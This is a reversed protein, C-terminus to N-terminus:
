PLQYSHLVTKDDTGVAAVWLQSSQSAMVDGIGFDALVGSIPLKWLTSMERGNWALDLIESDKFFKIHTLHISSVDINHPVLLQEGGTSPKYTVLRPYISGPIERGWMFDAKTGGYRESASWKANKFYVYLSEGSQLVALDEVGDGDWDGWAFGFLQDDNLTRGMKLAAGENYGKGSKVLPSPPYVRFERAMALDQVLLERKGDAHQLTRLVGTTRGVEKLTGSSYELVVTRFRKIGDNYSAAFIRDHGSGELDATDVALYNSYGRSEFKGISELAQGNWRFAEVHDRFAVVVDQKGNGEIDGLAMGIAVSNIQDSHWLETPVLIATTSSVVPASSAPVAMEKIRTRDGTTVEGKGEILTGMSFKEQVEEIVGSGVMEEAHGLIEGTVPHKLEGKERYITFTDGPKVESTKGWDLYVTASDAKVVYGDPVAACLPSRLACLAFSFIFFNKMLQFCQAARKASQATM